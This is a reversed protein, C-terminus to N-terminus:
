VNFLWVGRNSTFVNPKYIFVYKGKEGKDDTCVLGKQTAGKILTGSNLTGAFSAVSTTAVDGSPTQVKFDFVNYDQSKSTNNTITVSSCLVKTDLVDTKAAFSTAAVVVDDLNVSSAADACIDKSQQDPYTVGACSKAAADETKKSENSSSVSVIVIVGVLALPLLIRKKKYFPRAAKKYAKEARARGKADKATEVPQGPVQESM